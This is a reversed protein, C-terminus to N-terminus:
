TYCAHELDLETTGHIVTISGSRYAASVAVNGNSEASCM